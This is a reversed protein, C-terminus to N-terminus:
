VEYLSAVISIYCYYDLEATKQKALEDAKKEKEGANIDFCERWKQLYEAKHLLKGGDCADVNFRVSMKNGTTYNKDILSFKVGDFTSGVKDIIEKMNKDIKEIIETGDHYEFPNLNVGTFNLTAM